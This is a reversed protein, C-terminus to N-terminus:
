EEAETEDDEEEEDEIEEPEAETDAEATKRALLALMGQDPAKESWDPPTIGFLPLLMAHWARFEPFKAAITTGARRVAQPAAKLLAEILRVAPDGAM